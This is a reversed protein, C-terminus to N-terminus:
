KTPAWRCASTIHVGGRVAATHGQMDAATVQAAQLVNNLHRGGICASTIHV